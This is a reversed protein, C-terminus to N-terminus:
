EQFQKLVGVEGLVEKLEVSPGCQLPDDNTMGTICTDALLGPQHQESKRVAVGGSGAWSAVRANWEWTPPTDVAEQFQDHEAIRSDTVASTPLWSFISMHERCVERM